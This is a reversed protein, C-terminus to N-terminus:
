QTMTEDMNLLANAVALWAALEKKDNSRLQFSKMPPKTRSQILGDNGDIAAREDVLLQQLVELEFSSAHRAVALQVGYNLRAGDDAAPAEALIRDALALAMEAYAPDNLM